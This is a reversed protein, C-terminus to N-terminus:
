WAVGSLHRICVEAFYYAIADLLAAEETKPRWCDSSTENYTLYENLWKPYYVMGDLHLKQIAWRWIRVFSEPSYDLDIKSNGREEQYAQMLQGLREERHSLYQQFFDLSDRESLKDFFHAM